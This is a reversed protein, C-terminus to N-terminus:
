LSNRRRLAGPQQSLKVTNTVLFSTNTIRIMPEAPRFFLTCPIEGDLRSQEKDYDRVEHISYIGEM